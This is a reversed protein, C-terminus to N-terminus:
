FLLRLSSLLFSSGTFSMINKSIPKFLFILRQLLLTVKVKSKNCDGSVKATVFDRITSQLLPVPYHLRSFTETLRECELHFLQWNSSLKFARNLITQLLSQKYHVDVHSQYHLLLGTDTPKKYVKTELCSMHKVIEMGLFPLKGNAALEMTFNISPHSDNLTSLFAEATEVNPMISLTDDVYCKYFDPMKGQDQLREEISCMFANAM